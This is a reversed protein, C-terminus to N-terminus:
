DNVLAEIKLLVDQNEPKFLYNAAEHRTSGLKEGGPLTYAAGVKRVAGQSVAKELTVKVDFLDDDVVTIFERLDDKMISKIASRLKNDTTDKALRQGNLRLIDLMKTRDNKISGYHSWALEELDAELADVTAEQESDVLVYKYTAKKRVKLDELSPAVEETNALLVKWEIYQMPNSKDITYEEKGLRVKFEDWFNDHKKYVSLDGTTLDLGAEPSEFYAIEQKTLVNSYQGNRLMPAIYERKAGPALFAARHNTDPIFQTSKIIPKVTVKGEPLSFKVEKKSKVAM